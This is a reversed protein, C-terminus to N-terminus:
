EFGDLGDPEDRLVWAVEGELVFTEGVLAGALRLNRAVWQARDRDTKPTNESVTVTSGILRVPGPPQEDDAEIKEIQMPLLANFVNRAWQSSWDVLDVSGGIEGIMDRIRGGKMGVCAGVADVDMDKSTVAIKSHSDESVVREIVVVGETIEPIYKAFAARVRQDRNPDSKM